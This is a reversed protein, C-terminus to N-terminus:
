AKKPRKLGRQPLGGKSGYFGRFVGKKPKKGKKIDRL